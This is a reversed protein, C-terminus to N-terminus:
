SAGTKVHAPLSAVVIQTSNPDWGYYIRLCRKPDHTNGGNKVHWDAKMKQGQHEFDFTDGGCSANRVGEMIPEEGVSGGGSIRRRRCDAALWLLSKAVASVDEFKAKKLSRRASPVLVLRGALRIDIWDGIESWSTPLEVDEDPDTGKAELLSQLQQIRFAASSAQGEAALAREEMEDHLNTLQEEWAKAETLEDEMADLQTRIAAVEEGDVGMPSVPEPVAKRSAASRVSSFTVIERGLRTKSLSIRASLQRLSSECLERGAIDKLSDGVFLRHDLPRSQGSFGPLYIRVGGHFVSRVKGFANSLGYTFDAPLVFCHALGCCARAISYIDIYPKEPDDSREDGSAIIVPLARQPREMLDLLKALDNENRVYKPSKSVAEGGSIFNLKEAIQLIPGPVHPEIHLEGESSSVMQRLSLMLDQNDEGGVTVETTWVRGPVNKDPDDNRFAWLNGSSTELTEIHVSRGGSLVEVPGGNWADQPLQSPTRKRAWLLVQKRVDVFKCNPLVGAVRLIERERVPGSNTAEFDRLAESFRNM